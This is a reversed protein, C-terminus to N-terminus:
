RTRRTSPAANSRRMKVLLGVLGVVVVLGVIQLAGM